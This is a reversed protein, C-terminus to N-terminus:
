YTKDQSLKELIVVGPNQGGGQFLSLPKTRQPYKGRPYYRGNKCGPNM